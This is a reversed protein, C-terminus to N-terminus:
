FPVDEDGAAFAAAPEPTGNKPAAAAQQRPTSPPKDGSLARLNKGFLNDLERVKKPDLPDVKFDSGGVRAIGWQERDSGDQAKNHSCWMDVDMGVFTHHVPQNPDLEKFSAGQFGLTKLDEVFFDITKETISRYHTREYQQEAPIFNDPNAPDVKGLVKFRLVFQPNGTSAQGLAQGTVQCAYKGVPYYPKM